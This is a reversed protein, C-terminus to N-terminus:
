EWKVLPALGYTKNRTHGSETVAGEAILRQLHKHVAQRSRGFKEAVLRVIDTPHAGLQEIIFKRVAEGRLRVTTMRM